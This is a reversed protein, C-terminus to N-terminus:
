LIDEICYLHHQTDCTASAPSAPDTWDSNTATTLGVRGSDAAMSSSWSKCNLNLAPAEGIIDTNTWVTEPAPIPQGTETADIAHQLNGSTLGAWGRAVLTPPKTPLVYWGTFSKDLKQGAQSSNSSLWAVWRTTDTLPLEAAMAANFCVNDAATIAGFKGTFTANTTFVYRYPTDKCKNCLDDGDPTGDDCEEVGAQVFGDGCVAAKCAICADTDDSNEDECEEDAEANVTGDGCEVATCDGDCSASPGGDDCEETGALIVGDGCVATKCTNTCADTNDDNGDDCEEGADKKGDGCSAPSVTETCNNECGDMPVDNGDDCEEGDDVVGNGCNEGPTKTCDAECGDGPTANGDDCQEGPELVGNGCAPKDDTTATTTPFASSTTVETTSGTLDGTSGKPNYFCGHSAIVALSALLRSRM